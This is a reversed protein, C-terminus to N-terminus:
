LEPIESPASVEPTELVEVAEIQPMGQDILMESRQKAV